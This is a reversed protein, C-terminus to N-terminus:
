SVIPQGPDYGPPPPLYRQVPQPTTATLSASMPSAPADQLPGTPGAAGARDEADEAAQKEAAAQAERAAVEAAYAEGYAEAFAVAKFNCDAIPKVVGNQQLMLWYASQLSRADLEPLGASFEAITMGHVMHIVIGQRVDIEREDFEWTRGEFEIKV